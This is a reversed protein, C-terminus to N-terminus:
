TKGILKPTQKCNKQNQNMESIGLIPKLDVFTIEWFYVKESIHNLPGSAHRAHEERTAKSLHHVKGYALSVVADALIAAYRYFIDVHLVRFYFM